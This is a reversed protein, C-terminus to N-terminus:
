GLGGSPHHGTPQAPHVNDTQGHGNQNDHWYKQCDLAFKVLFYNEPNDAMQKYDLCGQRILNALIGAHSSTQNGSLKDAACHLAMVLEGIVRDAETQNNIMTMDPM